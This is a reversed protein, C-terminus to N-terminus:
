AVLEAEKLKRGQKILVHVQDMADEMQKPSSNTLVEEYLNIADALATREPGSVGWKNSRERRERVGFLANKGAQLIPLMANGESELGAIQAARVTTVNLAQRLVEFPISDDAAVRGNFLNDLAMRVTMLAEDRVKETEIRLAEGLIPDTEGYTRRMNITLLMTALGEAAVVEQSKRQSTPRKSKADREAMRRLERASYTKTKIAM